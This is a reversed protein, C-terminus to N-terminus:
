FDSVFSQITHWRNDGAKYGSCQAESVHVQSAGFRDDPAFNLTPGVPSKIGRAREAYYVFRERTLNRGPLNLLAAATINGQWGLLMFDDGCGPQNAPCESSAFFERVAKQFDPDFKNSDIWAPFPAFFKAQSLTGDRCGVTAVTDFTMTIGVGVWQPTYLQKQASDLVQLFWVPSTLVYVNEIGAAKMEQVVTDADSKNATKRVARDYDLSAGADSMADAFTDHADQFNNTDFRLMGNKESKAGLKTTLFDALLPGQDPYTMTTAFYNSLTSLGIETVGASLYPVNVSAAYKACAVIQDTGAAGSLLFVKDQQVMEKCVAVAQSPNYNDNKLVVEGTRGNISKKNHALWRFYLDKGKEASDSPVPAAGTLPAHSGIKITKDTVGTTDGGTPAGSTDTTGVDSTDGGGTTTTTDGGGTTGSDGGFSTGGAGGTLDGTTGGGIVEGTDPDIVEGTAPNIQAFGEPVQESVNPKQGCAVAVFILVAAGATLRRTQM